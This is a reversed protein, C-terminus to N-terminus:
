ENVIFHNMDGSRVFMMPIDSTGIAKPLWELMYEMGPEEVNFHGIAIVAKPDGLQMGDRMYESVTYDILEMTIICDTHYQNLTTITQNDMYGMCHMPIAINKVVTDLSGIIRTGNLHAGDIIQDALAKVTIGDPINMFLPLSSYMVPSYASKVYYKELNTNHLFGKFIGDYWGGKGDPVGSHIYDHDRWVTIGYADLLAKKRLFVQNRDKELWGTHDGHNWFLAEHPIILNAGLAHAKEIVEVSAFCTTVIGTCERDANGYLVKDRTTEENIPQGNLQLGRSYNKVANIIEQIKM